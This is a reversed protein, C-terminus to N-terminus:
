FHSVLFDSHIHLVQSLDHFFLFALALEYYHNLVNDQNLLIIGNINMTHLVFPACYPCYPCYTRNHENVSGPFQMIFM